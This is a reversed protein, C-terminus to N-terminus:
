WDKGRRERVVRVKHLRERDLRELESLSGLLQEATKRDMGESGQTPQQTSPAPSPASPSPQPAQPAPRPNQGRQPQPHNPAPTPPPTAGGRTQQEKRRLALEYNYRADANDPDRELAKRLSALADDFDGRSAQLTGLNYAATPGAAGAADGLTALVSEASAGKGALAAATARNVQLPDPGGRRLRLAYLSEAAAYRGARFARDGRAWDTQAHAPVAAILMLGAILMAAAAARRPAPAASRAPRPETAAPAKAPRAMPEGPEPRRRRARAVGFALMVAALLAFLPFQPLPREVLREGRTGRSVSGLAALLRPLDGGPRSAPFFAGSTRRALTRLLEEDLRSRVANGQEDRKVEVARGQDDLVPVVDGARTGVGVALVRYGRRGIEDAASAAGNELDEGDTWLIIIQETRRGGPLMRAAMRLGKGLDSGPESVADTGFSELVMRVAGRDLTLPCLPVADGAFAVVGVRSGELRDLVALAERRMEEVRSPAVDRVDMSASADMLLVVDSGTASRRVIERGWEPGAAGIALMVFAGARLALGLRRDGPRRQQLLPHQERPGILRGLRTNSRRAASWELLLWPILAVLLLAWRASAFSM